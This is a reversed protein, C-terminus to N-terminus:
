VKSPATQAILQYRVASPRLGASWPWNSVVESLTFGLLIALVIVLLVVQRLTV